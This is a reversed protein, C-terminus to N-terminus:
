SSLKVTAHNRVVAVYQSYDYQAYLQQVGEQYAQREFRKMSSQGPTAKLLQMVLYGQEPLTTVKVPLQKDLPRPMAFASQVVFPENKSQRSLDSVEHWVLGFQKTIERYSQGDELLKTIKKAETEAVAQAKELKLVQTIQDSVEKLPKLKATQHDALHILAVHQDDLQLVPSNTNQQM